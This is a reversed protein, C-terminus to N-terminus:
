LKEAGRRKHPHRQCPYATLPPFGWRPANRPPRLCVRAWVGGATQPRPAGRVRAGRRARPAARVGGRRCRLVAREAAEGGRWGSHWACPAGYTGQGRAGRARGDAAARGQARGAPARRQQRGAADRAAGRPARPAVRFPARLARRPDGDCVLLRPPAASTGRACISYAM